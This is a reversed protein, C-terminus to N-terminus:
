TTPPFESSHKLYTFGISLENSLQNLWATNAHELCWLGIPLIPFSATVLEHSYFASYNVTHIVRLYQCDVSWKSEAARKWVSESYKVFM